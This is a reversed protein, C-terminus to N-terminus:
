LEIPVNEKEYITGKYIQYGCAALEDYVKIEYGDEDFYSEVEYGDLDALIEDYCEKNFAIAEERNTFVKVQNIEIPEADSSVRVLIFLRIATKIM